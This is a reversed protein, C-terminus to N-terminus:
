QLGQYILSLQSRPVARSYLRFDAMSGTFYVGGSFRGVYLYEVSSWAGASLSTEKYRRGDVDVFWLPGRRGAAVFHWRGDNFTVPSTDISQYGADARGDFYISGGTAYLIWGVAGSQYKSALMMQTSATFRVWCTITIDGSINPNVSPSRFYQTGTFTAAPRGGIGSWVPPGFPVGLERNGYPNLAGAVTM